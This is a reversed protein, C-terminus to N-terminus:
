FLRHAIIHFFEVVCCPRFLLNSSERELRKEREEERRARKGERSNIRERERERERERREDEEEKESNLRTKHPSRLLTHTTKYRLFFPKM